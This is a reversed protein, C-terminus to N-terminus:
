SAKRKKEQKLLDLIDSEPNLLMTVYINATLEEDKANLKKWTAEAERRETPDAIREFPSRAGARVPASSTPAAVTRVRRPAPEDDDDPTPPTVGFAEPFKKVTNAKAIALQEGIPMAPHARIVANHQEIMYTNLYPTNNFWPNEAIFAPIAPDLDPAAETKPKPAKPPPPADIAARASEMEARQEELNDYAEQDGNVVAERQKAKLEAMARKYGTEDAREAVKRLYNIADAQEDLKAQMEDITTGSKLLKDSLRAVQDRLVPNREEGRKLFTKADVWQGPRGNYEAQPRWGQLRARAELDDEDHQDDDIPPLNPDRLFGPIESDADVFSM